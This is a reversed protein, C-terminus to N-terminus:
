SIKYDSNLWYNTRTPEILLESVGNQYDERPQGNHAIKRSGDRGIYTAISDRQFSMDSNPTLGAMTIVDQERVQHHGNTPIYSTQYAGDELQQLRTKGYGEIVTHLMSQIWDNNVFANDPAEFSFEMRVDDVEVKLESQGLLRRLWNSHPKLNHSLKKQNYSLTYKKM